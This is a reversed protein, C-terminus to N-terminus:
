SQESTRWPRISRSYTPPALPPSVPLSLPSLIESAADYIEIEQAALPLRERSIYKPSTQLKAGDSRKGRKSREKGTKIRRSWEKGVRWERAHVQLRFQEWLDRVGRNAHQNGHKVLSTYNDYNDFPVTQALTDSCEGHSSSKRIYLVSQFKM